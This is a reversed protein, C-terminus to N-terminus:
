AAVKHRGVVNTANVKPQVVGRIQDHHTEHGCVVRLVGVRRVVVAVVGDHGHDFIVAVGGDGSQRHRHGDGVQKPVQVRLLGTFKRTQHWPGVMRAEKVKIESPKVAADRHGDGDIKAKPVVDIRFVILDRLAADVDFDPRDSGGDALGVGVANVGRIFRHREDGSGRVRGSTGEVVRPLDVPWEVENRACTMPLDDLDRDVRQVETIVPDFEDHAVHESKRLRPEKVDSDEVVGGDVTSQCVGSM